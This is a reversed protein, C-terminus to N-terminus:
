LKQNFLEKQQPSLRSFILARQRSGTGKYTISEVAEDEHLFEEGIIELKPLLYFKIKKLRRTSALFFKKIIRLEPFALFHPM